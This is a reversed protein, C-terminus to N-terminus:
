VMAVFLIISCEQKMRFTPMRYKRAQTDTGLLPKHALQCTVTLSSVVAMGSYSM